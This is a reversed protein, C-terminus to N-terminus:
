KGGAPDLDFMGLIDGKELVSQFEKLFKVQQQRDDERSVNKETYELWERIYERIFENVADRTEPSRIAHVQERVEPDPLREPQRLLEGLNLCEEWVRDFVEDSTQQRGEKETSGAAYFWDIFSRISRFQYSSGAAPGVDLGVLRLEGSSDKALLRRQFSPGDGGPAELLLPLSIKEDPHNRNFSLNSVVKKFNQYSTWFPKETIQAVAKSNRYLDNGILAYALAKWKRDTLRGDVWPRWRRNAFYPNRVYQPSLYGLGISDDDHCFVSKGSTDEAMLLWRKIDADTRWYHFSEWGDWGRSEFDGKPTDTSVVMMYPNGGDTDVSVHNLSDKLHRSELRIRNAVQEIEDKNLKEDTSLKPLFVTVTDGRSGSSQGFQVLPDCKLAMRIATSAVIDGAEPLPIGKGATIGDRFAADKTAKDISSLNVGLVDDVAKSIDAKVSLNGTKVYQEAWHALFGEMVKAIAFEEELEGYDVTQGDLIAELGSAIQQQFQSIDVSRSLVKGFLHLGKVEKELSAEGEFRHALKGLWLAEDSVVGDKKDREIAQRVALKFSEPSFVPRLKRVIRAVPISSDEKLSKLERQVDERDGVLTFCSKRERKATAEQIEQMRLVSEVMAESRSKVRKLQGEIINLMSRYESLIKPYAVSLHELFVQSQITQIDKRSLPSFVNRLIPIKSILRRKGKYMDIIADVAVIKSKGRKELFIAEARDISEILEKLRTLLRDAVHHLVAPSGTELGSGSLNALSSTRRDDGASIPLGEYVLANFFDNEFKLKLSTFKTKIEAAGKFAQPAQDKNLAKLASTWFVLEIDGNSAVEGCLTALAVRLSQEGKKINAAVGDLVKKKSGEYHGILSGLISTGKGNYSAGNLESRMSKLRNPDEPFQCFSEITAFLENVSREVSTGATLAIQTPQGIPKTVKAMRAWEKKGSKKGSDEDVQIEGELFRLARESKAAIRFVLQIDSLPVFLINTATAVARAPSNADASRAQKMSLKSYISAACARYVGQPSELFVSDSRSTFVYARHVPNRGKRAVEVEPMFKETNISAVQEDAPESLDPLIFKREPGQPDKLWMSLESLGTLANVQLKIRQDPRNKMLDEFASADVFFGTPRCAQKRAGFFERAKLSLLQWCGRGTGGALSSVLFLEVMFNEMGRENMARDTIDQLVREFRDLGDWALFHSVMPCQAAGANIAMPMRYASFPQGQSDHWWHDRFARLGSGNTGSAKASQFRQQVLDQFVDSGAGLAFTEVPPAGGPVRSNFERLIENHRSCLDGVDTDCLVVHVRSRILEAAFPDHTAIEALQTITKGGTGGFGLLVYLTNGLSQKANCSM